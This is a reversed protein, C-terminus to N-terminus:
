EIGNVIEDVSSKDAGEAHIEISMGGSSMSVTMNEGDGDYSPPTDEEGSYYADVTISAGDGNVFSASTETRYECSYGNPTPIYVSQAPLMYSHSLEGGDSQASQSGSLDANKNEQDDEQKYAASSSGGGGGAHAGSSEVGYKNNEYIEMDASFRAPDAEDAEISEPVSPPQAKPIAEDAIIESAGFTDAAAPPAENVGNEEIKRGKDEIGNRDSNYAGAAKPPDAADTKKPSVPAAAENKAYSHVSTDSVGTDSVDTDSVSTGHPPTKASSSVAPVPTGQPPATHTATEEVTVADDTGHMNQWVPASIVAASVILLAAAASAAYKAYGNLLPPRRKHANKIVSNIFEESAKIDDNAEKYYKRFM